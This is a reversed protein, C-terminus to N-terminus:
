INEKPTKGVWEFAIITLPITVVGEYHLYTAKDRDINNALDHWNDGNNTNSIKSVNKMLYVVPSLMKVVRGVFTHWDGCHVLYAKGIEMYLVGQTVPNGYGSGSGSDSDSDSGYGRDSGSGYGRDSGSGYGNGLGSDSGIGSGRGIGYGWGYGIGYGSGNNNGFSRFDYTRLPTTSGYAEWPDLDHEQLWDMFILRTEPNDDKIFEIM